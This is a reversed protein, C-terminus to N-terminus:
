WWRVSRCQAVTAAAATQPMTALVAFVAGVVVSKM